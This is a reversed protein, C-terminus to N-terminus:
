ATRQHGNTPTYNRYASIFMSRSQKETYDNLMGLQNWGGAARIADQTRPPIDDPMIRIGSSRRKIISDWLAAPDEQPAAQAPTLPPGKTEEAEAMELRQLIKGGVFLNSIATYKGERLFLAREHQSTHAWDLVKCLQEATWDKLAAEIIRKDSTPINEGCREHYKRYRGWVKEVAESNDVKV